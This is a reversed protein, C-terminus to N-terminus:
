HIEDCFYEIFYSYHGDVWGDRGSTILYEAEDPDLAFDDALYSCNWGDDFLLGIFRHMEQVWLTDSIEDGYVSGFPSGHVGYVDNFLHDQLIEDSIFVDNDYVWVGHELKPQPRLLRRTQTKRGDLIARVSETNFLIPIEKM